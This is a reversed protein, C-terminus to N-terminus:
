GQDPPVSECLRSRRLMADIESQGDPKVGACAPRAQERAEDAKGEGLLTLALLAQLRRTLDPRFQTDLITKKSLATRLEAEAQPLEHKNLLNLARYLHTRPDAPYRTALDDAQARLEADTKPQAEDPMLNAADAYSQYSQALPVASWAFLALGCATIALAPKSWAPYAQQRPWNKLLLWGLLAGGLAGGLHAGFDIHQGNAVTLPLLAPVLLQLLTIQLRLRGSGSPYRFSCVYAAALLAMIAGSAGVSVIEPASLALSMLSGCLGGLVFIAGFWARGVLNELAWGAMVMAIGNFLLHLAGGHLFIESCLRYWEGQGMTLGRNGGGLAMLTPVGIEFLSKTPTVSKAIELCFVALMVALLAYALWPQGHPGFAPTEAARQLQERTERPERLLKEIFRKPGFSLFPLLRQHNVWVTRRSTDVLFAALVLKSTLKARRYQELRARAELTDIGNGVEIVFISVPMKQGHIQGTYKLCADAVNRLADADLAFHPGPHREADVICLMTLAYGDHRTLLIDCADILPQAEPVAQPQFGKKAAYQQALYLAFTDPYPAASHGPETDM